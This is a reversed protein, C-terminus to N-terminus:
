GVPFLNLNAPNLGAFVVGVAPGLGVLGPEGDDAAHGDGENEEYSGRESFADSLDLSFKKVLLHAAETLQAQPHDVVRCGHDADDSHGTQDHSATRVVVGEKKSCCWGKRPSM